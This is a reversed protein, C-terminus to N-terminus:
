DYSNIDQKRWVTVMKVAMWNEDTLFQNISENSGGWEKSYYFYSTLKHDM